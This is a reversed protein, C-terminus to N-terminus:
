NQHLECKAEEAITLTRENHDIIACVLVGNLFLRGAVYCVHYRRGFMRVSKPRAIRTDTLM